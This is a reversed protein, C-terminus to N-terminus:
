QPKPEIAWCGLLPYVVIQGTELGLTEGFGNHDILSPIALDSNAQRVSHVLVLNLGNPNQNIIDEYDAEAVHRIGGSAWALRINGTGRTQASALPDSNLIDKADGDGNFDANWKPEDIVSPLQYLTGPSGLNFPDQLSISTSYDHSIIPAGISSVKSGRNTLTDDLSVGCLPSYSIVTGRSTTQELNETESRLFTNWIAWLGTTLGIIIGIWILIEVSTVGSEDCKRKAM